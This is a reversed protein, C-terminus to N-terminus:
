EAVAGRNVVNDIRWTGDTRAMQLTAWVPLLFTKGDSKETVQNVLVLVDARDGNARVVASGMVQADVVTQQAVIDSRLDNMLQSHQAAYDATMFSEAEVIDADLDRYDFSLM